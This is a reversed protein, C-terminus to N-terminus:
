IAPAIEPHPTKFLYEQLHCRNHPANKILSNFQQRYTRQWAPEYYPANEYQIDELPTNRNELLWEALGLAPKNYNDLVWQPLGVPINNRVGLRHRIQLQKLIRNARLSEERFPKPDAIALIRHPRVSSMDIQGFEDIRIFGDHSDFAVYVGRYNLFYAKEVLPRRGNITPLRKYEVFINARVFRARTTPSTCIRNTNVFKEGSPYFRLIETSFHWVSIYTPDAHTGTLVARTNGGLIKKHQKRPSSLFDLLQRYSFGCKMKAGNSWM